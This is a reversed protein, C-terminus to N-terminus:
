LTFISFIWIKLIYSFLELIAQFVPGTVCFHEFLHSYIDYIFTVFATQSSIFVYPRVIGLGITRQYSWAPWTANGCGIYIPRPEFAPTSLDQGWMWWLVVIKYSTMIDSCEYHMESRTNSYQVDTSTAFFPPSLFALRILLYLGAFADGM